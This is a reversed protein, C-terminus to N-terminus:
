VTLYYDPLVINPPINCTPNSKWITKVPKAIYPRFNDHQPIKKAMAWMKATKQTTSPEISDISFLLMRQQHIRKLLAELEADNFTKQRGKHLHNDVDFNDDKFLHLWSSCMTKSLATDRYVKKSSETCKLLQKRWIFYSFWYKWLHQDNTCLWVNECLWFYHCKPYTFISWSNTNSDHTSLCCVGRHCFCWSM